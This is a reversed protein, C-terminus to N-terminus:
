VKWRASGGGGWEALVLDGKASCNLLVYGKRPTRWLCQGLGTVGAELVSVRCRVAVRFLEIAEFLVAASGM